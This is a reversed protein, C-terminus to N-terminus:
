LRQLRYEIAGKVARRETATFEDSDCLGALSELSSRRDDIGDTFRKARQVVWAAVATLALLMGFSLIASM